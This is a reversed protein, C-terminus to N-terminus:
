KLPIRYDCRRSITTTQFFFYKCGSFDMVMAHSFAAGERGRSSMYEVVCRCQVNIYVYFMQQCHMLHAIFNFAHVQSFELEAISEVSIFNIGRRGEERHSLHDAMSNSFHQAQNIRPHEARDV